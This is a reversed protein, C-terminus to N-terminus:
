QRKVRPDLLPYIYDVLLNVIIIVMSTFLLIGQVIFWDRAVIRDSLTYGIGPYNFISEMLPSGGFLAAFSGAVGTILPLMANRKLYRGSITSPRLGRARAAMIYDEGLVGITSSRMMIMWIGMQSIVYALIPLFAHYLVSGIFPLNFGPTSVFADYNGSAPFLNLRYAFISVLLLGILYDPVSSSVVIYSTGVTDLVGNRKRAMKAGLWTGLGFSILLAVSSIFLTWPLRQALLSLTTVDQIYLSTGFNGKFLGGVYNFFALFINENPDYNLLQTALRYAEDYSINRQGQLKLAYNQVVDGPMLRLLFFILIVSVSLTLVAILLKLFFHRGKYLVAAVKRLIKKLKSDQKM